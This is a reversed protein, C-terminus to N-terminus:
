WAVLYDFYKAWKTNNCGGNGQCLPQMNTIDDLGGNALPVIHDAVLTRGLRKLQGETKWCGVCRNGLSRKLQEFEQDTLHETCGLKLARRRRSQDRVKDPNKKEV